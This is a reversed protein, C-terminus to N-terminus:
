TDRNTIRQHSTTSRSPLILFTQRHKPAEAPARYSIAHLGLKELCELHKDFLATNDPTCFKTIAIPFGLQGGCRLAWHDTVLHQHHPSPWGRRRRLVEPKDPPEVLGGGFGRQWMSVTPYRRNAPARHALPRSPRRRTSCTGIGQDQLTVPATFFRCWMCAFRPASPTM